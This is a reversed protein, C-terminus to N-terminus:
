TVADPSVLLYPEAVTDGTAVSTLRLGHSGGVILVSTGASSDDVAYATASSRADEPGCAEVRWSGGIGGESEWRVHEISRGAAQARFRLSCGDPLAEHEEVLVDVFPTTVSAAYV